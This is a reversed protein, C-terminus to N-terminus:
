QTDTQPEQPVSSTHKPNKQPNSHLWGIRETHEENTGVAGVDGKITVSMGTDYKGARFYHEDVVSRRDGVM